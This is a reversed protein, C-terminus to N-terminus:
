HLGHDLAPVLVVDVLADDAVLLLNLDVVALLYLDVRDVLHLGVGAVLALLLFEKDVLDFRSLSSQDDAEGVLDRHPRYRSCSLTSPCWDPSSRTLQAGSPLTTRNVVNGWSSEIIWCRSLLLVAARAQHSSAVSHFPSVYVQLSWARRTRATPPTQFWRYEVAIADTVVVPDVADLDVLLLEDPQAWPTLPRTLPRRM